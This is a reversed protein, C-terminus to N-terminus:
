HRQRPLRKRLNERKLRRSEDLRPSTRLSGGDPASPCTWDAPSRRLDNDGIRFTAYHACISIRVDNKQLDFLHCLQCSEAFSKEFIMLLASLDEPPQRFCKQFLVDSRITCNLIKIFIPASHTSYLVSIIKEFHM